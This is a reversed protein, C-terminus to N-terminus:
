CVEVKPLSVAGSYGNASLPLAFRVSLSAYRTASMLDDGLAVIKGDERHYMQKETFWDTLNKFVKFKGAEMKTLMSMIGADVSRGGSGEAEGPAPPNSFCFPLMNLGEDRYQDALTAGSGKDHQNGDHPWAMPIIHGHNM